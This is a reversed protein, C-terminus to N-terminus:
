KVEGRAKLMEDALQYAYKAIAEDPAGINLAQVYAAMAACAFEDRLKSKESPLLPYVPNGTM